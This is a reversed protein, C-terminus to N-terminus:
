INSTLTFFTKIIYSIAHKYKNTYKQVVFNETYIKVQFIACRQKKISTKTIVHITCRAFRMCRVKIRM